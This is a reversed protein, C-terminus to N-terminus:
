NLKRRKKKVVSVKDLQSDSEETESSEEPSPEPSTDVSADPTEIEDSISSETKKSEEVNPKSVPEEVKKVPEKPKEVPKTEVVKKPLLNGTPKLTRVPSTVNKIVIDGATILGRIFWDTFFKDEVEHEGPKLITKTGPLQITRKLEIKKM